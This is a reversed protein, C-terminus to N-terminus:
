AIKLKILRQFQRSFPKTFKSSATGVRESFSQGSIFFESDLEESYFQRM